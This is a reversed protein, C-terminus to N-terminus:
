LESESPLLLRLSGNLRSIGDGSRRPKFKSRRAAGRAFSGEASRGNAHMIIASTSTVDFNSAIM